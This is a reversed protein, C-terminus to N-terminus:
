AVCWWIVSEAALSVVCKNTGPDDPKPTLTILSRRDKFLTIWGRIRM